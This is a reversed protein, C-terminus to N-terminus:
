NQPKLTNGVDIVFRFHVDGKLMRKFAENIYDIPIKEITCVLNKEGCFDLMEQLEDPSALCSSGISTGGPLIYIMLHSHLSAFDAGVIMRLGVFDFFETLSM